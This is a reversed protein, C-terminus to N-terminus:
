DAADEDDEEQAGVMAALGFDRRTLTALLVENLVTDASEFLRWLEEIRWVTELADRLLAAGTEGAIPEGNRAKLWRYLVQYGSVNFEWVARSVGEIRLSADSQLLVAGNQGDSVYARAPTPVGFTEGSARGTLRARRFQEAPAARFGQLLRIRAGIEVAQQFLAADAPFPVHPYDNELDHAFRTTYSAASLLALTADFVQQPEVRFGYSASLGAIAAPAVFHGSGEPAHNYLPFVWGGFSGRFAHQDPKLGHAWIAPGAGIGGPLTMLSVNETGWTEQLDPKPFDIFERRNYLYRIDLPRYSVPLIAGANFITQLAPGAKRDRTEKFETAADAPDLQLWRQIREGIVEQRVAYAFADRYTVIGNSRFRFLDRMSPWDTGQFGRPKLPGMGTEAVEVFDFALDGSAARSAAALKDERTFAGADWIDAYFVRAEQGEPKVGTAHAVLVCVGVEINFVNQDVPVTAPLAGRNEGRFDIIRIEDFRRRLMQRLGGFGSGTLFNRNTIFALVGRGLAGEAEFLRWLAWRYFAVYLDPFANLSRGMGADRVPQTLDRWRRAMDQGVLREVEGKKLRKYPPNGIIALIPAHQKIQDAALREAVIPASMYALHSQIGVGGTPPALTDTLFIPIREVGGGRGAVERLMRYHAVTYPGVLLEFGHMRQAFASVTPGVMGEGYAAKAAEAAASTARILFTGTGCAPDLLQVQRDLLGETNLAQRLRRDTEAVILSVIEPPTYYVGYRAVASPDFVRLFDEYLYLVPDRGNTPLLLTPDIANVTDVAVDFAAGLAARVEDTTLARLTARLLPYTRDPLLRYANEDVESGGAERALLLGFVLTQAFASAFLADTDRADHGGAEARAFLTENFEARVDAVAEALGARCQALTVERVLRGAHALVEAVERANRPTPPGATALSQVIRAFDVHAGARILREAQAHSTEPDLAAAPVIEARDMCEARNYLHISTFNSLAWVPFECFRNFQEADHGRLQSPEISKRPEKLEIFARAPGGARAMALDPRGFGERRYEPLIRPPNAFSRGVITELLTQFRPAILLELATGDAGIGRNAARDVRVQRAFEILGELIPM